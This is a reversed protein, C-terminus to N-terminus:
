DIEVVDEHVACMVKGPTIHLDIRSGEQECTIWKVSYCGSTVLEALTRMNEQFIGLDCLSDISGALADDFGDEAEFDDSQYESTEDNMAYTTYGRDVQDFPILKAATEKRLVEVEIPAMGAKKKTAKKKTAKKKATM